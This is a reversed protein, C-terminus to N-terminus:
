FCYSLQNAISFLIHFCGHCHGFGLEFLFGQSPQGLQAIRHMEARVNGVVAGLGLPGAVTLRHQWKAQALGDPAQVRINWGGRPFVGQLPHQVQADRGLQRGVACEVFQQHRAHRHLVLAVAFGHAIKHAQGIPRVGTAVFAPRDVLERDLPRVM